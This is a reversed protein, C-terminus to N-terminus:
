SCREVIDRSVTIRNVSGILTLLVVIRKKKDREVFVGSLGAFPGELLRVADGPRYALRQDPHLQHRQLENIVRDPIAAPQGGFRVLDVVGQTSRVSTTSRQHLDTNLFLYRPFLAEVVDYWKGCVRRRSQM